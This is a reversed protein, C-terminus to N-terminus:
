QVLAWEAAASSGQHCTQRTQDHYQKIIDSIMPHFNLFPYFIVFANKNNVEKLM